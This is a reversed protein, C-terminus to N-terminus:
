RLIAIDRAQTYLRREEESPIALQSFLRRHECTVLDQMGSVIVISSQKVKFNLQEPYDHVDKKWLESTFLWSPPRVRFRLQDIEYISYELM